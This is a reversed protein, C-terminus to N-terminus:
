WVIIIDNKLTARNEGRKGRQRSMLGHIMYRTGWTTSASSSMLPFGDGEECFIVFWQQAPVHVCYIFFRQNEKTSLHTHLQTSTEHKDRSNFAILVFSSDICNFGERQIYKKRCRKRFANSIDYFLGATRYGIVHNAELLYVPLLSPHYHYHFEVMVLVNWTM